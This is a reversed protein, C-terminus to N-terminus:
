LELTTGLFFLTLTLSSIIIFLYKARDAMDDFNATIVGTSIPEIDGHTVTTAKGGNFLEVLLEGIAHPNKPDDIGLPFTSKALLLSYKEKTGRSYFRSKHCCFTALCFTLSLSKGTGIGGVVLPAPCEDNADVITRYHLTLCGCGLVMLSAPANHKMIVTLAEVMPLLGKTSLPLPVRVADGSSAIGKGHYLHSSWAHMHAIVQPHSSELPVTSTYTRLFSGRSETM